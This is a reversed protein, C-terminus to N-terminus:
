ESISPPTSIEIETQDYVGIKALHERLSALNADEVPSFGLEDSAATHEAKVDSVYESLTPTEFRDLHPEVDYGSEAYSDPDYLHWGASVVLIEGDEGRQVDVFNGVRWVDVALNRNLTLWVVVERGEWYQSAHDALHNTFNDTRYLEREESNVPITYPMRVVLTVPGKGVHYDRVRFDVYCAPRSIGTLALSGDDYDHRIHTEHFSCRTTGPMLVGRALIHPTAHYNKIEHEAVKEFEYRLWERVTPPPFQPNGFTRYLHTITKQDPHRYDNDVSRYVWDRRECPDLDSDPVRACPEVTAELYSAVTVTPEVTPEPTPAAAGEEDALTEPHQAPLPLDDVAETDVPTAQANGCAAVFVSTAILCIIMTFKM